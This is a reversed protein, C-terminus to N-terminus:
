QKTGQGLADILQFALLSPNVGSDFDLAEKVPQCELITAWVSNVFEVTGSVKIEGDELKITQEIKLAENM